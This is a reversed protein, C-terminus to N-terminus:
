VFAVSKLPWFIRNISFTDIALKPGSVILQARLMTHLQFGNAIALVAISWLIKMNMLTESVKTETM